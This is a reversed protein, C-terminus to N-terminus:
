RSVAQPRSSNGQAFLRLSDPHEAATGVSMVPAYGDPVFLALPDNTCYKSFLTCQVRENQLLQVAKEERM